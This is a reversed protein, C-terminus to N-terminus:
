AIDTILHGAKLHTSSETCNFVESLASTLFCVCRNTSTFAKVSALTRLLSVNMAEFNACSCPLDFEQNLLRYVRSNSTRGENIKETFKLKLSISDWSPIITVNEM